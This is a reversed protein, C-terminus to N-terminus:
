RAKKPRGGKDTVNADWWAVFDAQDEIKLAVAAELPRIERVRLAEDHKSGEIRARTSKLSEIGAIGTRRHGTKGSGGPSSFNWSAVGRRVSGRRVSYTVSELWNALEGGGTQRLPSCSYDTELEGTRWVRLPPSAAFLVVGSESHSNM